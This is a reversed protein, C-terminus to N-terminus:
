LHKRRKTSKKRKKKNTKKRKKTNKKNNDSRNLPANVLKNYNKPSLKNLIRLTRLLELYYNTNINYNMHMNINNKDYLSTKVVKSHLKCVYSRNDGLSYSINLSAKVIKM